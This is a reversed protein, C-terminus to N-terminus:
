YTELIERALERNEDKSKKNRRYLHNKSNGDDGESVQTLSDLPQRNMGEVVEGDFDLSKKSDETPANGVKVRKSSEARGTGSLFFTLAFIACTSKLVHRM